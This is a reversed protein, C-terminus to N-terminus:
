SQEHKTFVPFMRETKVNQTESIGAWQSFDNAIVSQYTIQYYKVKYKFKYKM